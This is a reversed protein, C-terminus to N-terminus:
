PPLTYRKTHTSALPSQSILFINTLCQM